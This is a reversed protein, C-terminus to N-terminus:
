TRRKQRQKCCRSFDYAVFIRERNEVVEEHLQVVALQLYGCRIEFRREHARDSDLVHFAVAHYGCRGLQHEVREFLEGLHRKFDLDVVGRPLDSDVPRAARERNRTCACHAIGCHLGYAGLALLYQEVDVREYGTDVLRYEGRGVILQARHHVAYVEIEFRAAQSEHGGVRM